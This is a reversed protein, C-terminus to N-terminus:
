AIPVEQFTGTVLAGNADVPWGPIPESGAIAPEGAHTATYGGATPTVVIREVIGSITILVDVKDNDIIEAEVSIAQDHKDADLLLNAQNDHIWALLPVTLTEIPGDFDMVLIKADYRWEHSLSGYVCAAAGKETWTHLREPHKALAPVTNGIHKRLDILKKM